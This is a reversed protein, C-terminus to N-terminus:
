SQFFMPCFNERLFHIWISLSFKRCKWFVPFKSVNEFHDGVFHGVLLYRASTLSTIRLAPCVKMLKLQWSQPELFLDPFIKRIKCRSIFERSWIRDSIEFKAHIPRKLTKPIEPAWWYKRSAVQRAVPSLQQINFALTLFVVKHFFITM